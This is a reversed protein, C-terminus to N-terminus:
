EPFCLNGSTVYKFYLPILFVIVAVAIIQGVLGQQMMQEIFRSIVDMLPQPIDTNQAGTQSNAFVVPPVTFSEQHIIQSEELTTQVPTIHETEEENNNAHYVSPLPSSM